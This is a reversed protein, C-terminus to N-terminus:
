IYHAHTLSHTLSHTYSPSSETLCPCKGGQHHPTSAANYHCATNKSTSSLLPSMAETKVFCCGVHTENSESSCCDPGTMV